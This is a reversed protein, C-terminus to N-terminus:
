EKHVSKGAYMAEIVLDEIDRLNPMDLEKVLCGYPIDQFLLM